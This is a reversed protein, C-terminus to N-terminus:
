GGRPSAKATADIAEWQGERFETGTGLMQRLLVLAHERQM